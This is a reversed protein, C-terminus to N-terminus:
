QGGKAEKKAARELLIALIIAFFVGLIVLALGMGFIDLAGTPNPDIPGGGVPLHYLM